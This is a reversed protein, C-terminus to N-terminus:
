FTLLLFVFNILTLAMCALSHHTSNRECVDVSFGVYAALWRLSKGFM